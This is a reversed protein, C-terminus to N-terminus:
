AIAGNGACPVYPGLVHVLSTIPIECRHCGRRMGDTGGWQNQWGNPQWLQGGAVSSGAWGPNAQWPGMAQVNAIIEEEDMECVNAPPGRYLPVQFGGASNVAPEDVRKQVRSLDCRLAQLQRILEDQNGVGVNGRARCRGEQEEAMRICEELNRVPTTMVPSYFDGRLGGIWVNKVNVAHAPVNYNLLRALRRVRELYASICEGPEQKVSYFKGPM